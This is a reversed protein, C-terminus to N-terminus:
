LALQGLRAALLDIFLRARANPRGTAPWLARVPEPDAEFETLIDILQGSEIQERVQWFSARGIGIGLMVAANVAMVSDTAFPGCVDFYTQADGVRFKWRSGDALGSRTVCVHSTLEAPEIPRGHRLLYGPTAVVVRRATALLRGVLTSPPTQGIRVTIDAGSSAPDIALDAIELSVRVAPHREMFEAIVPLVIRSGFLSSANVRLAGAIAEAASRAEDHAAELEDMITVLRRHFMKGAATLRRTRTTRIILPTGLEAELRRLDRSISQVSRGLAIAVASMSKGEALAVFSEYRSLDRKM